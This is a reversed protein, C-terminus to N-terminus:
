NNFNLVIMHSKQGFFYIYTCIYNQKNIISIEQQGPVGWISQAPLGTLGLCRGIKAEAVGPNYACTVM